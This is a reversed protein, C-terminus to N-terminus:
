RKIILFSFYHRYKNYYIDTKHFQLKFIHNRGIFLKWYLYHIKLISWIWMLYVHIITHHKLIDDIDIFKVAVRAYKSM